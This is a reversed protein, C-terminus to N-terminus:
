EMIRIKGATRNEFFDFTLRVTLEQTQVEYANSIDTFAASALVQV